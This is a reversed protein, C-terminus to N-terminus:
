KTVIISHLFEITKEDQLHLPLSLSWTAPVCLITMDLIRGCEDISFGGKRGPHLPIVEKIAMLVDALTIDRGLIKAENTWLNEYAKDYALREGIYVKLITLGDLARIPSTNNSIIKMVSSGEFQIKCDDKLEMIEPVAKQIAETLEQLKTM